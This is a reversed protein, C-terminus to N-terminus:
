GGAIFIIAVQNRSARPKAMPVITPARVTPFATGYRSVETSPPPATSTSAAADSAQAALPSRTSAM